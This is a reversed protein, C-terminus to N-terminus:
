NFVCKSCLSSKVHQMRLANKVYFMMKLFDLWGSSGQCHRSTHHHQPRREFEGFNQNGAQNEEEKSAASPFLSLILSVFDNFVYFQMQLM